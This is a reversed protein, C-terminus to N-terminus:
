RLNKTAAGLSHNEQYFTGGGDKIEFRGQLNTTTGKEPSSSYYVNAAFVPNKEKDLVIGSIKQAQLKVSFVLLLVTLFYGTM